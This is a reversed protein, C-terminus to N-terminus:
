STFDHRVLQLADHSDLVRVQEEALDRGPQGVSLLLHSFEGPKTASHNLVEVRLAQRVRLDGRFGTQAAPTDM